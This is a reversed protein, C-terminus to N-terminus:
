CCECDYLIEQGCCECLEPLEGWWEDVFDDCNESLYSNTYVEKRPLPSSVEGIVTYGACRGKQNNYDGPISVVDAPNVKILMLHGWTTWTSAYQYSAFHLGYSCTVDRRDDVQNREMRPSDGVRNRVTGSHIDMYNSRVSKYAVIDGDSHIMFNNAVCFLLLENQAVASPNKRVKILFNILAHPSNGEAIMAIVKKSVAENFPIGDLEVLQNRLRVRPNINLWKTAAQEADALNM